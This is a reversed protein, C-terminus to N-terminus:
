IFNYGGVGRYPNSIKEKSTSMNKISYIFYIHLM